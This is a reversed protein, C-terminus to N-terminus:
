VSDKILTNRSHHRIYYGVIGLMVWFMFGIRHKHLSDEFQCRVFIGVLTTIASLVFAKELSNEIKIYAKRGFYTAYFIILCFLIVSPIGNKFAMWILENHPVIRDVPVPGFDSPLIYHLVVGMGTGLFPHERIY